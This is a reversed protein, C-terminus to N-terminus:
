AVDSGLGFFGNSIFFLTYYLWIIGTRDDVTYLKGNFKCLESLEMGRGNENLNTTLTHKTTFNVEYRGNEHVKLYGTRFYSRWELDKGPSKSREEDLDAVIAIKVLFFSFVIIKLSSVCVMSFISENM